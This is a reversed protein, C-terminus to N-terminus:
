SFPLEETYNDIPASLDSEPVADMFTTRRGIFKMPITGLSGHRNKAIDLEAYDDGVAQGDVEHIDYYFPRWLFGVLDADQEISGSERLDSLQPRKDGREEVKRSLQSLAVIPINLERAVSKVSRSIESIEGERNKKGDIGTMLQLYDLFIVKVKNRMWLEKCKARFYVHNIGPTDDIFLPYQGVQEKVQEFRDWQDQTVDGSMLVKYPVDIESSCLRTVLQEASMELSFVGVPIGQKVINHAITLMLSTKGMGPRAALIFVDPANLGLLLTDIDFLGTKVGEKAIDGSRKLSILNYLGDVVEKVDKFGTKNDSYLNMIVSMAKELVEAGDMNNFAQQQMEHSMTIIQRLHYANKVLEGHEKINRGTSSTMLQSIRYSGGVQELANNKKLYSSTTILDPNGGDKVIDFMAAVIVQNAGKYYYEPTLLENHKYALEPYSLIAGIISEEAQIDQPPLKGEIM